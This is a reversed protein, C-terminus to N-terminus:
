GGIPGTAIYCEIADVDVFYGSSAPNRTGTVQIHIVLSRHAGGVQKIFSAAQQRTVGPGYMDVYTYGDLPTTSGVETVWVKAIGRNYAKTHYFKFYGVGYDDIGAGCTARAAAGTTQSLHHTHLIAGEGTTAWWNEDYTWVGNTDDFIATTFFSTAFATSHSGAALLTMLALLLCLKVLRLKSFM